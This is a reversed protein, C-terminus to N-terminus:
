SYASQAALDCYGVRQVAPLLIGHSDSFQLRENWFHIALGIRSIGTSEASELRDAGPKRIPGQRRLWLRQLQLSIRRPLCQDADSFTDLRVWFWRHLKPIQRWRRDGLFRFWALEARSGRYQHDQN